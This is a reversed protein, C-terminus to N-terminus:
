ARRSAPLGARTCSSLSSNPRSRWRPCRRRGQRSRRRWRRRAPPPVDGPVATVLPEVGRAELLGRLEPKAFLAADVVMRRVEAHEVIYGISDAALTHNIPVWTLGAKHIGFIAIVMQISNACLMGVRDGSAMGLGLLHHALRNSAENLERYSVRQDGDILATREAFRRASRELMDGLAIRRIRQPSLEASSNTM